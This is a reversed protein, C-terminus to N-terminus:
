PAGTATIVVDAWALAEPLSPWAVARGQVRQAWAQASAETRNICTIARVGHLHLAEAALGGMEGTGVVLTRADRLNRVKDQALLVAAHSISTTHRGIATESRARKGAHAAHMFLRSLVPGVTSAEQAESFAHSVQGLIQAEGLILSDLGAAVRMLHKAAMPGELCYLHSAFHDPPISHQQALVRQVATWGSRTKDVTAYVELRNCTSLIVTEQM